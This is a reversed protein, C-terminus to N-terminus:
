VAVCNELGSEEGQVAVSGAAHGVGKTRSRRRVHALLVADEDIQRSSRRDMGAVEGLRQPFNGRVAATVRSTSRTPTQNQRVAVPLGNAQVSSNSRVGAVGSRRPPPSRPRALSDRAVKLACRSSRMMVAGVGALGRVLAKM